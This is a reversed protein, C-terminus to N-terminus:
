MRARMRASRKDNMFNPPFEQFSVILRAIDGPKMNMVHLFERPLELYYYKKRNGRFREAAKSLMSNM